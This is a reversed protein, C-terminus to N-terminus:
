SFSTPVSLQSLSRLHEGGLCAVQTQDRPDVPPLLPLIGLLQGRVKVCAPACVSM